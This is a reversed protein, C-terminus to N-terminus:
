RKSVTLGTRLCRLRNNKQLVKDPGSVKGNVLEPISLTDAKPRGRKEAKNKSRYEVTDLKLYSHKKILRTLAAQADKQCAFQKPKLKALADSLEAEQKVINRELTKSEREYVQESWVVLWRMTRGFIEVEKEKWLYGPQPSAKMGTSLSISPDEKPTQSLLEKAKTLTPPVRTVFHVRDIERLGEKTFLASDAILLM